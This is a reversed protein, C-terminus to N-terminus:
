PMPGPSLPLAGGSTESDPPPTKLLATVDPSDRDGDPARPPVAPARSVALPHCEAVTSPSATTTSSATPSRRTGVHGNGEGPYLWLWGSADRALLDARGDGTLDGARLVATYGQWGREVLVGAAVRGNGVRRPFLPERRDDDLPPGSTRGPEQRRRGHRHPPQRCGHRRGEPPSVSPVAVAYFLLAGDSRRRAMVDGYRDGDFDAGALVRDMGNLRQRYPLPRPQRLVRDPRHPLGLPLGPTM